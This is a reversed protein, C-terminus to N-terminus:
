WVSTLELEHLGNWEHGTSITKGTELEQFVRTLFFTLTCNLVKTIKSVSFLNYSFHPLYFVYSLPLTHTTTAIGIGHVPTRSGDALKVSNSYSTPTFSSIICRNGTIHDTDGLDIVWINSM